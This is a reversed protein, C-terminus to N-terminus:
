GKIVKYKWGRMKFYELPDITKGSARCEFHLHLAVYGSEPFGIIEGEDIPSKETCGKNPTIHWFRFEDIGLDNEAGTKAYIAHGWKPDYVIRSIVMKEPALIPKPAWKKDVVRIDVGPHFEKNGDRVRDGYPSTIEIDDLDVLM